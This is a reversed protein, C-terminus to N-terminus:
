QLPQKRPQIILAFPLISLFNIGFASAVPFTSTRGFETTLSIVIFSLPFTSPTIYKSELLFSFFCIALITTTEALAKSDGLNSNFEFDDNNGSPNALLLPRTPFFKISVM